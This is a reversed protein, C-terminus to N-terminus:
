LLNRLEEETLERVFACGILFAGNPRPVSRVVKTLVTYLLEMDPSQLEVALMTEPEFTQNMVLGIGTRSLDHIMAKWPRGRKAVMVQSFKESPYHRVSARREILGTSAGPAPTSQTSGAM